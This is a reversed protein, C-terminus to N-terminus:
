DQKQKLSNKLQQTQAILMQIQLTLEQVDGKTAYNRDDVLAPDEVPEFLENNERKVGKIILTIGELLRGYTIRSVFISDKFLDVFHFFLTIAGHFNKIRRAEYNRAIDEETVVKRKRLGSTAPIASAETKPIFFTMRDINKISKNKRIILMFADVLENLVTETSTRLDANAITFCRLMYFTETDTQATLSIDHKQLKPDRNEFLHFSFDQSAADLEKATKFGGKDAEIKFLEYFCTYKTTKAM